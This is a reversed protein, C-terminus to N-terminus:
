TARRPNPAPGRSVPWDPPGFRGARGRGALLRRRVGRASSEMGFRNDPLM